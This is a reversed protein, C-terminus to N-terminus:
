KTTQSKLHQNIAREVDLVAIARTKATGRVEKSEPTQFCWVWESREISQLIKYTLGKHEM